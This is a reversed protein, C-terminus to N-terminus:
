PGLVERLEEVIREDEPAVPRKALLQGGAIPRM